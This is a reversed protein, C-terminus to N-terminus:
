PLYAPQTIKQHLRAVEVLCRVQQVLGIGEHDVGVFGKRASHMRM